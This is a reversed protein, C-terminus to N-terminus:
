QVVTGAYRDLRGTVALWSVFFSGTALAYGPDVGPMQILLIPIRIAIYLLIGLALGLPRLRGPLDTSRMRWWVGGFLFVPLFFLILLPAVLWLLNLFADEVRVPYQQVIFIALPIYLLMPVLGASRYGAAFIGTVSFIALSLGVVLLEFYQSEITPLNGLNGLIGVTQGVVFLAFSVMLLFTPIQRSERWRGYLYAATGGAMAIALSALGAIVTLNIDALLGQTQIASVILIPGGFSAGYGLLEYTAEQGPRLFAFAIMAPGMLAVFKMAVILPYPLVIGEFAGAGRIGTYLLPINFLEVVLAFAMAATPGRKTDYAIWVFVAAVGGMMLSRIVSGLNFWMDARSSVRAVVVISASSYFLWLCLISVLAAFVGIYVQRVIMSAAVGLVVIEAVLFLYQTYYPILSQFGVIPQFGMWNLIFSSSTLVEYYNVLTGAAYILLALAFLYLPRFAKRTESDQGASRKRSYLIVTGAAVIAALGLYLQAVEYIELELQM